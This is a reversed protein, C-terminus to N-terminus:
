QKTMTVPRGDRWNGSLTGDAGATLKLLSAPCGAVVQAPDISLYPQDDKMVLKAPAPVKLCPDEMKVLVRVKWTGEDGRMELSASRPNGNPLKWEAVWKGDLSPPSQTSQAHAGFAFAAVILAPFKGM